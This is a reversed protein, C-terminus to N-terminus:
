GNKQSSFDWPQSSAWLNHLETRFLDYWRGDRARLVLKPKPGGPTKFSYYKLFIAGTPADPNMAVMGFGLPHEITHIQLREQSKKALEWLDQLTNQIESRARDVNSRGYARAETMGVAAGNPDVLLIRILHGERLKTELVSYYTRVTTTLSVGAIWVEAASELEAGFSSPFEDLFVSDSTQALKSSLDVVAQRTRLLATALLGLIALTVPEILGSPTLGFLTLIALTIALPVAIYLDINEGQRLDGWIRKLLPM